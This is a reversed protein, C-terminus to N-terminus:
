RKTTPTTSATVIMANKQLDKLKSNIQRRTWDLGEM